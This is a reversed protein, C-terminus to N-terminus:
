EAQERCGKAGEAMSEEGCLAVDKPHQLLQCAHVGRRHARLQGGDEGADGCGERHTWSIHFSRRPQPAPPNRCAGMSQGHRDSRSPAHCWACSCERRLHEGESM